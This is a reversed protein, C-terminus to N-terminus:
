DATGKPTSTRRQRMLCYINIMKKWIILIIRTVQRSTGQLLLRTQSIQPNFLIIGKVKGKNEINNRM